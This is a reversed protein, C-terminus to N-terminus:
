KREFHKRLANAFLPFVEGQNEPWSSRAFPSTLSRYTRHLLQSPSIFPTLRLAAFSPPKLHRSFISGVQPQFDVEPFSWPVGRLVHRMPAGSDLLHVLPSRWSSVIKKELTRRMWCMSGLISGGNGIKPPISFPLPNVTLEVLEISGLMDIAKGRIISPEDWHIM